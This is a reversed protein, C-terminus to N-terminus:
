VRQLADAPTMRVARWAPYLSGAACLAFTALVTPLILGLTPKFELYEGITPVDRFLFSGSFGLAIGIVCGLACILLGELLISTMILRASWGVAAVIGFERTREQTSMLLTNLVSVVGMILAIITVVRSVAKLTAVNRDNELLEGPTSVSLRELM